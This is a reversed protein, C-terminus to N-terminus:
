WGEEGPHFRFRGNLDTEQDCHPCTSNYTFCPFKDTQHCSTGCQPCVVISTKKEIPKRCRGCILDNSPAPEIGPLKETSFLFVEDGVRIEDRHSLVRIGLPIEAGNVRAQPNSSVICWREKQLSSYRHLEAGGELLCLGESMEEPTWEDSQKKWLYM